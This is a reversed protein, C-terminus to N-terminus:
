LNLEFTENSLVETHKPIDVDTKCHFKQIHYTLDYNLTYVHVVLTLYFSFFTNLKTQAASFSTSQPAFTPISKSNLYCQTNYNNNKKKKQPM